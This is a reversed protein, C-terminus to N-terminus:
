LFCSIQMWNILWNSYRFPKNSSASKRHLHGCRNCCFQSNIAYISEVRLLSMFEKNYKPVVKDDSLVGNVFKTLWYKNANRRDIITTLLEQLDIIATLLKQRWYNSDAFKSPRNNNDAIKTALQQHWCIKVNLWTTLLKQRWNNDSNQQDFM